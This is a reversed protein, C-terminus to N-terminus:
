LRAQAQHEIFVLILAFPVLTLCLPLSAVLAVDSGFSVEIQLELVREKLHEVHAKKRLRTKKAHERNRERSKEIKDEQEDCDHAALTAATITGRGAM